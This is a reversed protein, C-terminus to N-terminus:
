EGKKLYGALALAFLVAPVFEEPRGFALDPYYAPPLPAFAFFIFSLLTLFAVGTYVHGERVAQTDGSKQEWRWVYWSLFILLSLFFRSAVWSWPILAPLDSPLFPAFATSTVVAHYGDLMATGLFGAGVFLITSNKKSYFRVLAMVGVILALITAAIEMNTHLEKSGQWTSGRSAFFLIFLGLATLFYTIKRGHIPSTLTATQEM